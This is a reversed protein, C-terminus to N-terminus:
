CPESTELRTMVPVGSYGSIARPTLGPFVKRMRALITRRLRIGYYATLETRGEGDPHPHQRQRGDVGVRRAPGGHAPGCRRLLGSRDGRPVAPCVRQLFRLPRQSIFKPSDFFAPM